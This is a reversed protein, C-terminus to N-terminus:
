NVKKEFERLIRNTNKNRIRETRGHVALHKVRRNPYSQIIQQMERHATFFAVAFEDISVKVENLTEILAKVATEIDIKIEPHLSIVEAAFEQIIEDRVEDSYLGEKVNDSLM